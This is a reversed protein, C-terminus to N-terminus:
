VRPLWLEKKLFSDEYDNAYLPFAEFLSIDFQDIFMMNQLVLATAYADSIAQHPNDITISYHKAITSLQHNVTKLVKRSVKLTDIFNTTDIEVGTTLLEKHLFRAEFNANHAVLIRGDFAALVQATMSEFTPSHRVMDETIGHINTAGMRSSPRILTELQDTINGAKDMQVIGIEVISDVHSLGTTELDVVAYGIFNDDEPTVM